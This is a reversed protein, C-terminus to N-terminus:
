CWLAVAGPVGAGGRHQQLQQLRQLEGCVCHRHPTESYRAPQQLQQLECRALHHIAAAHRRDAGCRWRGPCAPVAATSSCNSCDSCNAAFATSAITEVTAPPNSCNSCNSCNASPWTTSLLRTADILVV